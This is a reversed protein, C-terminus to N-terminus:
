SALPEYRECSNYCVPLGVDKFVTCRSFIECEFVKIKVKGTCSDCERRESTAEGLHKCPVRRDQATDGCVGHIDKATYPSHISQNSCGNKCRYVGWGEREDSDSVWEFICNM